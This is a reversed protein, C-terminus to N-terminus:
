LFLASLRAKEHRVREYQSARGHLCPQCGHGGTDCERMNLHEATCFSACINCKRCWRDSTHCHSVPHHHAPGRAVRPRRTWPPYALMTCAQAVHAGPTANGHFAQSAFMQSPMLVTVSKGSHSQSSRLNPTDPASM